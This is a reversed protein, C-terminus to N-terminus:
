LIELVGGFLAIFCAVGNLAAGRLFARPTEIGRHDGSFAVCPNNFNSSKISLMNAKSDAVCSMFVRRGGQDTAHDPFFDVILGGITRKINDIIHTAVLTDMDSVLLSPTGFFFCDDRDVTRMVGCVIVEWFVALINQTGVRAAGNNQFADVIPKM